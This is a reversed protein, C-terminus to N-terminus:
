RQIGQINPAKGYKEKLHVNAQTKIQFSSRSKSINRYRNVPKGDQNNSRDQITRHNPYKMMGDETSDAALNNTSM